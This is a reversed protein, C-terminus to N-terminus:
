SLPLMVLRALMRVSDARRCAVPRCDPEVVHHEGVGLEVLQAGAGGPPQSGAADLGAVPDAIMSGLM